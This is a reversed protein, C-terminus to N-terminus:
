PEPWFVRYDGAEAGVLSWTLAWTGTAADFDAQWFDDGHVSQDIATWTGEVDRQLQWGDHRVLGSVTVPVRGLGGTFTFAAATAGEDAALEFPHQQVLTGATATLRDHNGEALTRMM